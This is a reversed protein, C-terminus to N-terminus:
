VPILPQINAIICFLFFLFQDPLDALAGPHHINIQDGKGGVVPILQVYKRCIFQHLFCPSLVARHDYSQGAAVPFSQFQHFGHYLLGVPFGGRSIHSLPQFFLHLIAPSLIATSCITKMIKFIIPM